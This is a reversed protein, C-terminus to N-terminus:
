LYRWVRHRSRFARSQVAIFASGLACLLMSLPRMLRLYRPVCMASKAEQAARLIIGKKTPKSTM